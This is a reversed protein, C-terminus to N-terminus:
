VGWDHSLDDEEILRGIILIDLLCAVNDLTVTMKGIPLHFSITEEHWRKTLACVLEHSISEYGNKLLPPLVPLM